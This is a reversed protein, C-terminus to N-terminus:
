IMAAKHRLSLRDHQGQGPREHGESNVGLEQLSPGPQIQLAMKIHTMKSRLPRFGPRGLCCRSMTQTRNRSKCNRSTTNM